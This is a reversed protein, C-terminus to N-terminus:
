NRQYDGISQRALSQRYIAIALIDSVPEVHAVVARRDALHQRPAPKAFGIVYAAPVLFGIQFDDM